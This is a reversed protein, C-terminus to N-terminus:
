QFKYNTTASSPNNCPDVGLTLQTYLNGNWRTVRRGRSRVREKSELLGWPGYTGYVTVTAWTSSPHSPSPVPNQEQRKEVTNSPRVMGSTVYPFSDRYFEPLRFITWYLCYRPYRNCIYLMINVTQKSSSRGPKSGVEIVNRFVRRSEPPIYLDVM